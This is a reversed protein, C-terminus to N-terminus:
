SENKLGLRKMEVVSLKGVAGKPLQSNIHELRSKLVKIEEEVAILEDALAELYFRKGMPKATIKLWREIAYGTERPLLHTDFLKRQGGRVSETTFPWAERRARKEVARKSVNLAAAIMSFNISKM